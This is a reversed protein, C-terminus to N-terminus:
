AGCTIVNMYRCHVISLYMYIYYVDYVIHMTIVVINIYLYM